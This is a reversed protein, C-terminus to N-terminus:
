KKSMWDIIANIRITKSNTLDSDYETKSVGNPQKCNFKPIDVAKYFEMRDLMYVDDFRINELDEKNKTNTVFQEIIKQASLPISLESRIKSILGLM